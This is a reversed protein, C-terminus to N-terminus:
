NIAHKMGKCLLDHKLFTLDKIQLFDKIQLPLFLFLFTLHWPLKNQLFPIDVFFHSGKRGDLLQTKWSTQNNSYLFYACWFDNYKYVFWNKSLESFVAM